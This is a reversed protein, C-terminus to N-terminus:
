FCAVEQDLVYSKETKVGVATELEEMKEGDWKGKGECKAIGERVKCDERM